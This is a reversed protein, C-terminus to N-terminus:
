EFFDEVRYLSFEFKARALDQDSYKRRDVPQPLDRVRLAIVKDGSMLIVQPPDEPVEVQIWFRRRIADMTAEDSKDVCAIVGEGILEKAKELSIRKHNVVVRGEIDSFMTDPIACVFYTAM